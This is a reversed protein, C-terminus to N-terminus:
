FTPSITVVPNSKQFIRLVSSENEAAPVAGLSLLWEGRSGYDFHNDHFKYVSCLPVNKKGRDMSRM